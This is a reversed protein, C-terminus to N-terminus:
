PLRRKFAWTGTNTFGAKETHEIVEWGDQGLRDFTRLRHMTPSGDKKAAPAKLKDALDEWGTAKVEEQSTSWVVTVQPVAQPPPAGPQAAPALFRLTFTLEAYEYRVPKDGLNPAAPGRNVFLGLGLAGAIALAAILKRM